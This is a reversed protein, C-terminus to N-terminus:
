IHTNLFITTSMDFDYLEAMLILLRYILDKVTLIWNILNYWKVRWVFVSLTECEFQSHNLIGVHMYENGGKIFEHRKVKNCRKLGKVKEL